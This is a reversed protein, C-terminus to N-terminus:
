ARVDGDFGVQRTILLPSTPVTTYDAIIQDFLERAYQRFQAEREATDAIEDISINGDWKWQPGALASESQHPPVDSVYNPREVKYVEGEAKLYFFENPFRVDTVLVIQVGQMALQSVRQRHKKIWHNVDEYRRFETGWWQLLTRQKGLPCLPDSMDPSTEYQVWAPLAPFGPVERNALASFLNLMGGYQTALDNVEMKLPAAFPLTAIRYRSGYETVIHRALTDKGRRAGHGFGILLPRNM